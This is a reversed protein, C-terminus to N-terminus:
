ISRGTVPSLSALIEGVSTEKLKTKPNPQWGRFRQLLTLPHREQRLDQFRANGILRRAQEPPGVWRWNDVGIIELCVLSGDDNSLEATITFCLSKHFLSALKDIM